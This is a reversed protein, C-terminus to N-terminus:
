ANLIEKIITYKTEKSLTDLFMEYTVYPFDIPLIYPGYGNSYSVLMKKGTVPDTYSTYGSEGAIASRMAEEYEPNTKKKEDKEEQIRKREEQRQNYEDIRKQM